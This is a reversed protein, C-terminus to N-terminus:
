LSGKWTQLTFAKISVDMASCTHTAIEWTTSSNQLHNWMVYNPFYKYCFGSNEKWGYPCGVEKAKTAGTEVNEYCLNKYVANASDHWYDSAFLQVNRFERPDDNITNQKEEGDVAIKYHM